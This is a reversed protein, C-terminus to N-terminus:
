ASLAHVSTSPDYPFLEEWVRPWNEDRNPEQYLSSLKKKNQLANGVSNAMFDIAPEVIAHFDEYNFLDNKHPTDPLPPPGAACRCTGLTRRLLKREERTRHMTLFRMFCALLEPSSDPRGEPSSESVTTRCHLILTLCGTLRHPDDRLAILLIRLAEEVSLDPLQDSDSKSM